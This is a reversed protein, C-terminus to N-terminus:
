QLKGRGSELGSSFSGGGGMKLKGEFLKDGSELVSM